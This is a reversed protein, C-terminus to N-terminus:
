FLNSPYLLSEESGPFFIQHRLYGFCHAQLLYWKYLPESTLLLFLSAVLLMSERMNLHVELDPPHCHTCGPLLGM